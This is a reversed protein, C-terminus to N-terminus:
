YYDATDTSPRLHRPNAILRENVGGAMRICYATQRREYAASAPRALRVFSLRAGAIHM